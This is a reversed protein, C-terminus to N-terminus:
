LIFTAGARVRPTPARTSRKIAAPISNRRLADAKACDQLQFGTTILPLPNTEPIMV